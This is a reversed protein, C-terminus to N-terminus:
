SNSTPIRRPRLFIMLVFSLLILNVFQSQSGAVFLTVLGFIGIAESLAYIVIHGGRYRAFWNAIEQDTATNSSLPHILKRRLFFIALVICASIVYFVQVLLSSLERGGVPLKSPRLFLGVIVYAALSLLMGLHILKIAKFQHDLSAKQAPNLL